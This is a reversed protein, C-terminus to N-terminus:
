EKDDQLVVATTHKTACSVWTHLWSWVRTLDLIVIPREKNAKHEIGTANRTTTAKMTAILPLPWLLSCCTTLSAMGASCSKAIPSPPVFLGSRLLERWKDLSRKKVRTPPLPGLKRGGKNVLGENVQENVHGKSSVIACLERSRWDM